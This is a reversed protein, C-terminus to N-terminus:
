PAPAARTLQERVRKSLKEVRKLKELLDKSVLGQNVGNMDGPISACLEALEKGDKQFQLSAVRARIDDPSPHKQVHIEEPHMPNVNQSPLPVAILLIGIFLCFLGTSRM